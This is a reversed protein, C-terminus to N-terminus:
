QFQLRARRHSFGRDAPEALHERLNAVAVGAVTLLLSAVLCVSAATTLRPNRRMWKQVREVRSLEPAFRLPRDDLFARLDEAFHEARQYRVAPDPALCTRVISELSWPADARRERLSPAAKSREAAMAELRAPLASYSGSNEFPRAGTLAEFLVMGLAYIDSRHNVTHTHDSTKTVMARLHEPSMYALTGGLVLAPTGDKSSQSLNFDLLMPQGDGGILINSPKIDRHVIGRDHAHQLAEALRAVLWVVARIYTASGLLAVPTQGEALPTPPAEVQAPADPGRAPYQCQELAAVIELASSIFKASNGM